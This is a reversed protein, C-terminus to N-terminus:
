YRDRMSVGNGRGDRATMKVCVRYNVPLDPVGDGGTNDFGSSNEYEMAYSGGSGKDVEAGAGRGWFGTGRGRRCGGSRARDTRVQASRHRPALCWRITRM